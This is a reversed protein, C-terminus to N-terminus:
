RTTHHSGRTSSPLCWDKNLVIKREDRERARTEGRADCKKRAQVHMADAASASRAQLQQALRSSSCRSPCAGGASPEVGTSRPRTRSSSSGRTESLHHFSRLHQAVPPAQKGGLAAFGLQLREPRRTLITSHRSAADDPGRLRWGRAVSRHRAPHQTSRRRCDVEVARPSHRDVRHPAAM